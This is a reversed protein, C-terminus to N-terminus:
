QARHEEMDPIPRNLQRLWQVVEGGIETLYYIDRALNHISQGMGSVGPRGPFHHIEILGRIRFEALTEPDGAFDFPGTGRALNHAYKLLTEAIGMDMLEKALQEVQQTPVSVHGNKSRLDHYTLLGGAFLGAALVPWVAWENPRYEIGFLINLLDFPVVLLAIVLFYWRRLVGLAYLWASEGLSAM